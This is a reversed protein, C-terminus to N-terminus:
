LKAADRNVWLEIKTVGISRKVESLSVEDEVSLSGVADRVRFTNVKLL